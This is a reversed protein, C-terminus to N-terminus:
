KKPHITKYQYNLNICLNSTYHMINLFKFTHQTCPYNMNTYLTTGCRYHNKTTCSKRNCSLM